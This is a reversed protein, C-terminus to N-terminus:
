KQNPIVASLLRLSQAFFDSIDKIINNQDVQALVIEAMKFPTKGLQKVEEITIDPETASLVIRVMEPLSQGCYSIMGSVNMTGSSNEITIGRMSAVKSAVSELLPQLLALFKLYNDYELDVVKFTRGGLTVTRDSLSPDNTAARIVERETLTKETEM